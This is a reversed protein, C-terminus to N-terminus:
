HPQPLSRLVHGISGGGEKGRERKGAAGEEIWVLSAWLWSKRPVFGGTGSNIVHCSIIGGWCVCTCVDSTAISVRLPGDDWGSGRGSVCAGLSQLSATRHPGRTPGPPLRRLLPPWSPPPRAESMKSHVMESMTSPSQAHQTKCQTHLIYIGAESM